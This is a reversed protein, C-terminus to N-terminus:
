FDLSGHPRNNYWGIFEDLSDFEYRFRNYADFWKEVKGNNQPHKVRALIPRVDNTELYQKFERDWCGNEDRRHAGFESGHNM